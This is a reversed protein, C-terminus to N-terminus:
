PLGLAIIIIRQRIVGDVETTLAVPFGSATEYVITETTQFDPAACPAAVCPYRETKSYRTHRGDPDSTQTYGQGLLFRERDPMLWREPVVSTDPYESTMTDRAVAAYLTYTTGAMAMVTGVERPVGGEILEKRWHRVDRYTLRWIATMPEGEHGRSLGEVRYVVTFAPWDPAATARAERGSAVFLVAALLATGVISAIRCIVM